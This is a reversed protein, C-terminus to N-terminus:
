KRSALEYKCFSAEFITPYSLLYLRQMETESKARNESRLAWDPSFILMTLLGFYSSKWWTWWLKRDKAREVAWDWDACWINYLQLEASRICCASKCIRYMLCQFLPLNSGDIQRRGNRHYNNPQSVLLLYVNSELVDIEPKYLINRSSRWRASITSHYVCRHM